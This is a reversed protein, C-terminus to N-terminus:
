KGGKSKKRRLEKFRQRLGKLGEDSYAGEYRTCSLRDRENAEGKAIMGNIHRVREGMRRALRLEECVVARGLVEEASRRWAKITHFRPGLERAVIERADDKTNVKGAAVQFEIWRLAELRQQWASMGKGDGWLGRDSPNLPPTVEGFRLADLAEALEHLWTHCSANAIPRLLAALAQQQVESSPRSARAAHGKAIWAEAQQRSGSLEAGEWSLNSPFYGHRREIGFIVRGVEYDLAPEAARVILGLDVLVQRVWQDVDEDDPGNLIRDVAEILRRREDRRSAQGQVRPSKSMKEM